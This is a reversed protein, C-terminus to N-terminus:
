PATGPVKGMGAGGKEALHKELLLTGFATVTHFCIPRVGLGGPVPWAALLSM